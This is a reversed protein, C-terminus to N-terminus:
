KVTTSKPYSLVKILDNSSSVILSQAANTSVKSAWYNPFFSLLISGVLLLVCVSTTVWALNNKTANTESQAKQLLEPNPEDVFMMKILSFYYFIAIVSSLLITLAMVLSIQPLVMFLNQSFKFSKSVAEPLIATLSGKISADILIFKAILMSPLISALNAFCIGLFVALKPKVKYLGKVAELSDSHISQVDNQAFWDEFKMLGIFASLNVVVYMLLYFLSQSLSWDPGLVAGTMVYGIQAVSSYALLRKISGGKARFIQRAGVLNGVFMSAIALIAFITNWVRFTVPNSGFLSWGVRCFIAFAAIKSITALFATAPLAGGNYVDPAWFHFPALALKFAVLVVIFLLALTFIVFPFINAYVNLHQFMMTPLMAFNTNGLALGTILSLAFLLFASAVAGNLLYKLSAEGSLTDSKLYGIMAISSLSLTELAVFLLIFDNCSVLFCAGLSAGLLLFQFEGKSVIQKNNLYTSGALNLSLLVVFILGKLLLGFSDLVFSGRFSYLAQEPSLQVFLIVCFALGAILLPSTYIWAKKAQNPFLSLILAIGMGVLITLEPFVSVFDNKDAIIKLSDILNM